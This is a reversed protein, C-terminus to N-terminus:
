FTNKRDKNMVFICDFLVHVMNQKLQVPKRPCSTDFHHGIYVPCSPQGHSDTSTGYQSSLCVRDSWHTVVVAGSFEIPKKQTTTLDKNANFYVKIYKLCLDTDTAYPTKLSPSKIDRKLNTKKCPTLSPSIRNQADSDIWSNSLLMPNNRTPKISLFEYSSSDNVMGNKSAFKAKWTIKYFFNDNRKKTLGCNLFTALRVRTPVSSGASHVSGTVLTEAPRGIDTVVTETLRPWCCQVTYLVWYDANVSRYYLIVIDRHYVKICLTRM